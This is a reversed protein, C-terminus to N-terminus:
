IRLIMLSHSTYLALASFRGVVTIKSKNSRFGRDQPSLFNYPGHPNIRNNFDSQVTSMLRGVNKEPTCDQFTEPSNEINGSVHLLVYGPMGASFVILCVLFASILSQM